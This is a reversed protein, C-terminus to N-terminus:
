INIYKLYKYLNDVFIAGNLYIIKKFFNFMQSQELPDCTREIYILGCVKRSNPVTAIANAAIPAATRHLTAFSQQSGLM